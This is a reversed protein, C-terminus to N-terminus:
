QKMQGDIKEKIARIVLPDNNWAGMNIMPFNEPVAARRVLDPIDFQSHIADASIAAPFYLLKEVGNRLFEEIKSAPKPEKFEMWALGMNEERYGDEALLKLIEERFATEQATETPWERDWEDPQGHGVLLIGVRSKETSGISDSARQVFM